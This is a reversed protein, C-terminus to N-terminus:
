SRFGGRRAAAKVTSINRRAELNAQYRLELLDENSLPSLPAPHQPDALDGPAPPQDIHTESRTEPETSDPGDLTEQGEGLSESSNDILDVVQITNERREDLPGSSDNVLDVVQITNLLGPWQTKFDNLLSYGAVDGVPVWRVAITEFDGNNKRPTWARVVDSIVVTYKWAGHDYTVVEDTVVVLPNDGERCDRPLNAEEFSERFATERPTEGPDIVGGPLAWFGSTRQHLVVHTPPSDARTRDRRVLLTGAAGGNPGM